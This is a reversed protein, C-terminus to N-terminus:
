QNEPGFPLGRAPCPREEHLGGCLNELAFARRRIEQQGADVPFRDAAVGIFYCMRGPKAAVRVTFRYRRGPLFPDALFATGQAARGCNTHCTVTRRDADLSLFRSSYFAPDFTSSGDEM